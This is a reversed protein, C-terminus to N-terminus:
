CPSGKVNPWTSYDARPTNDEFDEIKPKCEARIGLGGGNDNMLANPIMMQYQNEWPKLIAMRIISHPNWFPDLGQLYSDM